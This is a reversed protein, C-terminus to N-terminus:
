AASSVPATEQWLPPYHRLDAQMLCHPRGHLDCAELSRWHLAEFMKVNQSQVHALFLTCGRAHATGVAMRILAAGLGARRRWGTVVALRSGMWQGPDTQHIRVTGVIHRATAEGVTCAVITSAIADIDDRDNDFLGQEVCFVQHRLAHAGAFDAPASALRVQFGEERPDLFTHTPTM